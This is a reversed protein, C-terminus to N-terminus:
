ALGLARQARFVAKVGVPVKGHRAEYKELRMIAGSRTVVFLRGPDHRKFRFLTGAPMRSPEYLRVPHPQNNWPRGRGRKRAAAM